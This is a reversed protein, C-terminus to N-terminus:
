AAASRCPRNRPRVALTTLLATHPRFGRGPATLPPGLITDSMVVLGPMREGRRVREYAFRSMTRVDHTLLVRGERAAWDLIAPDKAEALGVDQVRVLDLRPNRRLLGDVIDGNFNEDSLLRIM